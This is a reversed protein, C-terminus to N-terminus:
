LIKGAQVELQSNSSDFGRGPILFRSADGILDSLTLDLKELDQEALKELEVDESM